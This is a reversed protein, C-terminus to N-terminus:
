REVLKNAVALEHLKLLAMHPPDDSGTLPEAKITPAPTPAPAPPPKMASQSTLPETKVKSAPSATVFVQAKPVQSPQNGVFLSKSRSKM